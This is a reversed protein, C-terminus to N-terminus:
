SHTNLIEVTIEEIPTSQEIGNVIIKSVKDKLEDISLNTKTM